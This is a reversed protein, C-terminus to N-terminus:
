VVGIVQRMNERKELANTDDGSFIVLLFDFYPRKDGPWAVPWDDSRGMIPGTSGEGETAAGGMGATGVGLAARGGARGAREVGGISDSGEVGAAFM